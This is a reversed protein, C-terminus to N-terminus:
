LSPRVQKCFFMLHMNPACWCHERQECFCALSVLPAEGRDRSLKQIAFLGFEEVSSAFLRMSFQGSTLGWGRGRRFVIPTVLSNIRPSTCVTNQESCHPGYLIFAAEVQSSQNQLNWFTTETWEFSVSARFDYAIGIGPFPSTNKGLSQDVFCLESNSSRLLIM